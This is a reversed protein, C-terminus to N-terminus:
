QNKERMEKRRFLVALGFFSKSNKFFDVGQRHVAIRPHQNRYRGNRHAAKEERGRLKVTVELIDVIYFRIYPYGLVYEVLLVIGSHRRLIICCRGSGEIRGEKAAFGQIDPQVGELCFAYHTVVAVYGINEHRFLNLLLPNVVPMSVPVLREFPIKCALIHHPFPDTRSGISLAQIRICEFREQGEAIGIELRPREIIRFNQRFLDCGIEYFLCGIASIHDEGGSKHRFILFHSDVPSHSLNWSSQNHIREEVGTIHHFDYM